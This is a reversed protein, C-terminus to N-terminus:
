CAHFATKGGRLLNSLHLNVSEYNGVKPDLHLSLGCGTMTSCLLLGCRKQEILATHYPCYPDRLSLCWNM